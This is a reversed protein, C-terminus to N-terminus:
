AGLTGASTGGDTGAGSAAAPDGLVGYRDDSLERDLQSVDLEPTDAGPETPLALVLEPSGLPRVSQEIPTPAALVDDVFQLDTLKRASSLVRSELSGVTTNYDKVVSNISRGLKDVHGGLRALRDYLERGLDFVERANDALQHQNWAYGVTRLITILTAPTAIIVQQEMAHEQLGPDAELAHVLISESPVFLVVFDPATSFQRWYGKSALSSVHERLHRAHAALRASSVVPDDSQSGELFAAMSVKADVVIQKGGALHIVMDPRIVGDDAARTVQTDFDVHELMGALEVVRRLQMEGWAGRAQPAKLASVLSRTEVQLLQATEHAAKVQEILGAHSAARSKDTETISAAVKDLTAKIPEVLQQVETSRKTLEAAQQDQSTKLRQDALTLFAENNRQLARAALADFQASLQAQEDKIDAIRRATAEREADLRAGAETASREAVNARETLVTREGILRDREAKLSDREATTRAAAAVAQSRGYAIGLGLGVVLGVLLLVLSGTDM